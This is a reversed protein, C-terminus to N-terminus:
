IAVKLNEIRCNDVSKKEKLLSELYCRIADKAMERAEKLNNGETVLSPLKSVTVTYGQGNEEFITEFHYITEKIKKNM